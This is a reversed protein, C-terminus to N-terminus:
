KKKSNWVLLAAILCLVSSITWASKANFYYMAVGSILPGIMMGLAYISRWAGIGLGSHSTSGYQHCLTVSPVMFLMEGITFVALSCFMGLMTSSLGMALSSAGLLICGVCVVIHQNFHEVSKTIKVQFLVVLIPDAAFFSGIILSDGIMENLHIGLVTKQVGYTLGICFVSFLMPILSRYVTEIKEQHNSIPAEESIPIELKLFVLMSFLIFALGVLLMASKFHNQALLMILVMAVIIGSNELANKYSQAITLSHHTNSSIQLLSSNSCTIFLNIGFGMLFVLFIAFQFTITKGLFALAIGILLFSTGILYNSQMKGTFYGGFLGGFIAGIGMSFGLFGINLKNFDTSVSFFYALHYSMGGGIAEVFSLALLLKCSIPLDTYAFGIKPPSATSSM